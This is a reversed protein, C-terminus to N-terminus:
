QGTVQKQAENWKSNLDAIIDEFSEDRLDLAAEIIRQKFNPQWFGIEAKQDIQDLWGEQGEKAPVEAILEVGLEDFASLTEPMPQGKIPSIAGQQESFGSEELFWYFWAKAAEKNKSHKSIALKYDGGSASYMKGNAQSPFPMYAIDDPNEAAGQMQTIAWSGLVMAGIEGRGMMAKSSEWDTTTPDEEILGEKALDYMLKYLTHHPKGPAFPDQSNPLQINTFEPDGAISLRNNEWQNLTWGAAYNTYYPIADTKEKIQRMAAMFEDTSKPLESIGAQEFVARNYVIGQANVIMPIGYSTGEHSKEQPYMYKGSLEEITGLPEFFQPLDSPIIDNPILLVDGYDETNLRMKVQGEYDSLAEFNVTVDPYKENFKPVYQKKFVDDVIDTRNTLVTIEGSVSSESSAESGNPKAAPQETGEQDGSGCAALMSLMLIWVLSVSLLKRM